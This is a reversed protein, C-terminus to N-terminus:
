EVSSGDDAKDPNSPETPSGGPASGAAGGSNLTVLTGSVQVGAPSLVVFSGGGGKLTLMASSEIVINAGGKLHITEGNVVYNVGAEHIVNTNAKLSVSGGVKVNQDNTVTMHQTDVKTLQKGTVVLHKNRGIWTLADNTIYSDFNRQARVFVQEKSDSDNFRLENFGNSGHTRITSVASNKPLGYPPMNASNYVCGVIIPRDIDGDLFAVIVEQGVRPLFMTGWNKGAWNQAVRVWCRTKPNSSKSQNPQKFQEWHFQVQVQGFSDTAIEKKDPNTVIEDEDAAVVFATQMGGRPLSTLRESRYEQEQPIAAFACLFV